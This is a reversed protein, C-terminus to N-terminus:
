FVEEDKGEILIKKEVIINQNELLDKKKNTSHKKWLIKTQKLLNEKGQM